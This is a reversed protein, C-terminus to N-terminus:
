TSTSLGGAIACSSDIPLCLKTHEWGIVVVWYLLYLVSQQWAPLCALALALM